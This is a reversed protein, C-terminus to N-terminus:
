KKFKKFECMEETTDSQKPILKGWCNKLATPKIDKVTLSINKICDYINFDKWAAKLEIGDETQRFIM